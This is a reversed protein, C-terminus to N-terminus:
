TAVSVYMARWRRKLRSESAHEDIWNMLFDRVRMDHKRLISPRYKSGWKNRQRQLVWREGTKNRPKIWLSTKRNREDCFVRGRKLMRLILKGTSQRECVVEYRCCADNRRHRQPHRQSGHGNTLWQQPHRIMGCGWCGRVAKTSAQYTTHSVTDYRRRRAHAQSVYKDRNM